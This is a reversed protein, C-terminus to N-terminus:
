RAVEVVARVSKYFAWAEAPVATRASGMWLARDEESLLNWWAMGAEVDSSADALSVAAAASM